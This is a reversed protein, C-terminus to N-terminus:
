LLVGLRMIFMNACTSPTVYRWLEDSSSLEFGGGLKGGSIWYQAPTLMRFAHLFSSPLPPIRCHAFLSYRDEDSSM